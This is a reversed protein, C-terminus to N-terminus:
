RIKKGNLPPSVGRNRQTKKAFNNEALPPYGGFGSLFIGCLLMYKQDLLEIKNGTKM